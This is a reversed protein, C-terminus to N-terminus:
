RRFFKSFAFLLLFTCVVFLLAGQTEYQGVEGVTFDPQVFAFETLSANTSIFENYDVDINQGLELVESSIREGTNSSSANSTRISYKICNVPIYYSYMDNCIIEEKSFYIYLDPEYSYGTSRYNDSIALYYFYGEQRMRGTLGNIMDLQATSFM